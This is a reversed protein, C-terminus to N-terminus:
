KSLRALFWLAVLTMISLGGGLAHVASVSDKTFAAYIESAAAVLILLITLVIGSGGSGTDSAEEDEVEYEEESAEYGQNYGEGLGLNWGREFGAVLGDRHAVRTATLGENADELQQDTLPVDIFDGAERLDGITDMIAAEIANMGAPSSHGNWITFEVILDDRGDHVVDDDIESAEIGAEDTEDVDLFAEVAQDTPTPTESSESNPNFGPDPNPAIAEVADAIEEESLTAADTETLTGLVGGFGDDTTEPQKGQAKKNLLEAKLIVRGPAAAQLKAAKPSSATVTVSHVPVKSVDTYMSRQSARHYTVKYQKSM